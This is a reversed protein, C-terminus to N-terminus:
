RSVTKAVPRVAPARLSRVLGIPLCHRKCDAELRTRLDAAETRVAELRNPIGPDSGEALQQVRDELERLRSTEAIVRARAAQRVRIAETDLADAGRVRRRFRILLYLTAAFAIVVLIPM